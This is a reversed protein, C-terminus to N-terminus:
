ENLEKIKEFVNISSPKCIYNIDLFCTVQQFEKTVSGFKELVCDTNHTCHLDCDGLIYTFKEKGIPNHLTEDYSGGLLLIHTDTTESLIYMSCDFTVFFDSKNIIHWTQSMNQDSGALDIGLKINLNHYNFKGISVVYIGHENLLDVLEQWKEKEWTRELGTIYPNICVYRNPLNEISIYKDPVYDLYLDNDKLLFNFPVSVLKRQDRWVFNDSDSYANFIDYKSEDGIDESDMFYNVYRNNKLFEQYASYLYNGWNNNERSSSIIIKRGYIQYLKRISPSLFMQDGLGVKNVIRLIVPKIIIGSKTKIKIGESIILNGNMDSVDIHIYDFNTFPLTTRFWYTINLQPEITQSYISVKNQDLINVLVKNYNNNLPKIDIRNDYFDYTINFNYDDICKIQTM